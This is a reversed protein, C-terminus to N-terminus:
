VPKGKNGLWFPGILESLRPVAYYSHGDHSIILCSLTFVVSASAFMRSLNCRRLKRVDKVKKIVGKSLM